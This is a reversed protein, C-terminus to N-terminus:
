RRASLAMAQSIAGSLIDPRIPKTIYVTIGVAIAAERSDDLEDSSLAIIPLHAFSSGLARIRRTAAPGNMVPMQMDMLTVLHRCISLGLGTGEATHVGEDTNRVFPTFLRKQLEQTMGAVTDDVAFRLRM